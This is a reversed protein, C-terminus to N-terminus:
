ITESLEGIFDGIRKLESDTYHNLLVAIKDYAKKHLQEHILFVEKGLPTLSYFIEKKNGEMRYTNILKKKLLKSTIKSIGGKTISMKQSIGIANIFPNKEICDVVHCETLTIDSIDKCSKETLLEKLYQDEYNGINIKNIFNEIKLTLDSIIQQDRKLTMIM